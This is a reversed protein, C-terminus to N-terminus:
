RGRFEYIFVDVTESGRPRPEGARPPAVPPGSGLAVYIRDGDVSLTPKVVNGKKPDVAKITVSTELELDDDYVKLVASVERGVFIRNYALFWWGNRRQFGTAFTEVDGPDESLPMSGVIKWEADLKVLLLDSPTAIDVPFDGDECTSPVVMFCTGDHYLASTQRGPGDAVSSLDLNKRLLQKRLDKSFTYVRYVTPEKRSCSAQRFRTLVSVSDAGVLPLPDNVLEDGAKHLGMPLGTAIPEATEAVKEFREDLTYKAGWLFAKQGMIVTEYFAFLHDGDATVRIDTPKGFEKTTAVLEKSALEKSMERDFVKVRFAQGDRTGIGALYVVFVRDGAAVIEPRAGPGVHVTRLLALGKDPEGDQAFAEGVALVALVLASAWWCIWRRPLSVM